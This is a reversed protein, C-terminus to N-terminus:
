PLAQFLNNRQKHQTALYSRIIYFRAMGNQTRFGGSIKQKVKPM